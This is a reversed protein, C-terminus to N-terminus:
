GVVNKSWNLVQGAGALFDKVEQPGPADGAGPYREASGFPALLPFLAKAPLSSKEDVLRSALDTLDHSRPVALGRHVVSVRM